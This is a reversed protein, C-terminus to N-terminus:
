SPFILGMFILIILVIVLILIQNIRKKDKDDSSKYFRSKRIGVSSPIIIGAATVAAILLLMPSLSIEGLDSKDEGDGGGDDGDSVSVGPKLVLVEEYSLHGLSDNACFRITIDNGAPVNWYIDDWLNGDIQDDVGLTFTKNKWGTASAYICYWCTDLNNETISIDFLPAVVGINQNPVPSNITIRPPLIDKYLTLVFTDNVNGAKDNAYIYLQFTTEDALSDWIGSDLPVSAGNYPLYITTTGVVYWVEDLNPDSAQIRIIPETDWYSQNLNMIELINVISPNVLDKDVLVRDQNTNGLSDNIKFVIRVWGHGFQYWLAQDIIGDTISEGLIFNETRYSYDWSELYYWTTNIDEGSKSISFDPATFSFVNNASNPYDINIDPGTTDKIVTVEESWFNGLTDNAYFRIIVSGDEFVIWDFYSIQTQIQYYFTRNETYDTYDTANILMYWTAMLNAEVIIINFDPPFTGFDDNPKPDIINIIPPAMDKHVIVENYDINGLTDNAYFRIRVTGNLFSKWLNSDITGSTDGPNLTINATWPGGVPYISYWMTDFNPDVITLNFGITNNGFVEYMDPEIIETIRPGLVDKYLTYVFTDNINGASDNAYFNITFWGEDPM